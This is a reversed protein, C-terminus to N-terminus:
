IFNVDTYANTLLIEYEFGSKQMKLPIVKVNSLESETAKPRGNIFKVEGEDNEIVQLQGLLCIKDVSNRLSDEEIVVDAGTAPVTIKSLYDKISMDSAVTNIITDCMDDVDTQLLDLSEMLMDSLIEYASM